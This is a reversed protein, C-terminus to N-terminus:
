NTERQQSAIDVALFSLNLGAFTDVFSVFSLTSAASAFTLDPLKKRASTSIIPRPPAPDLGDGDQLFL